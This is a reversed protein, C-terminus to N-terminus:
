MTMHVGSQDISLEHSGILSGPLATVLIYPQQSGRTGRNPPWRFYRMHNSFTQWAGVVYGLISHM